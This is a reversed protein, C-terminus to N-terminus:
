IHILSLLMETEDASAQWSDIIYPTIDPRYQAIADCLYSSSKGLWAGCEAFKGNPPISGILFDFTDKYNFCGDIEETKKM